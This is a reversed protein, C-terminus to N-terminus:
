LDDELCNASTVGYEDSLMACQAVVHFPLLGLRPVNNSVNKILLAKNALILASPPAPSHNIKCTFSAPM